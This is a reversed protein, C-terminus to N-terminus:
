INNLHRFWLQLISCSTKKGILKFTCLPFRLIWHFTTITTRPVHRGGFFSEAAKFFSLSRMTDGYRHSVIGVSNLDFDYSQPLRFSRNITRCPIRILPLWFNRLFHLVCVFFAARLFFPPICYLLLLSCPLRSRTNNLKSSPREKRGHKEAGTDIFRFSNFYFSIFHFAFTEIAHPLM